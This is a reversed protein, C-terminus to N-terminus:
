FERRGRSKKSTKEAGEVFRRCCKRFQGGVRGNDNTQTSGDAYDDYTLLPPATMFELGEYDEFLIMGSRSGETM